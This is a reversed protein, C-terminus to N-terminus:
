DKSNKFVPMKYGKYKKKFIDWSRMFHQRRERNLLKYPKHHIKNHENWCIKYGAENARWCFDPDEFYLMGFDEDFLGIKEIVERKLFMGGCGVYNFEESICSRRQPYFDKKMQWGEFGIIDFGNDIYSFYSKVWGKTVFQDNDLFIVYESKNSLGYAINRGKICGLNEKSLSLILNDKEKKLNELFDVTGDQSYNDLIVLNFNSTFHYINEICGKTNFIDNHTLLIIDIKDTM